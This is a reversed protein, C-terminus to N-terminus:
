LREVLDLVTTVPQHYERIAATAHRPDSADAPVVVVRRPGAEELTESSVVSGPAFVLATPLQPAHLRDWADLEFIAGGRARQHLHAVDSAARLERPAFLCWLGRAALRELARIVIDPWDDNPRYSAVLVEQGAFWPSFEAAWTQPTHEAPLPSAAPYRRADLGAARCGPCGGCSPAVRIPVQSESIGPIRQSVNYTEVFLECLQVGPALARDMRDRALRDADMAGRRAPGVAEEWVTRDALAGEGVTVVATSAYAAFAAESRVEWQEESEDSRRRPPPTAALSLLGSRNMLLLTRMNWARNEASDGVLDPPSVDLPLGLRGDDFTQGGAQMKRWREFGRELSILKPQALSNATERDGPAELLLSMSPRGDRGGRGVEQYFRDITEPVCAHVIARVDPQDVGLGFASTAVVLDLTDDRLRRIAERREAASTEGAVLMLRSFGAVSLRALWAKADFVRTTYLILPRPLRRISEIVRDVRSAPDPCSVLWYSPEHRLAVASILETPGPRGFLRQLTFISEETLTASLLITRFGSGAAKATELLDNRVGALAQFAPRFETGWHSVIHAEDIVLSRLLGREAALYVASSLSRILGEPSTFVIGQTGDAIQRRIETRAENSLEGYYALRNPFRGSAVRTGLLDRFAREQDIALSTTPVVVITTGASHSVLAEIYAALSKGSGTPLNGIITANPATALVARITERQGASRYCPLGTAATLFPDGPELDPEGVPPRNHGRFASAAPDEDGADLWEPTWPDAFVRQRDSDPFGRMEFAAWDAPAPWPADRPVPLSKSTGSLEADARLVHRLLVALDGAGVTHPAKAAARAANLLRRAPVSLDATSNPPDPWARLAVDLPEFDASTFTPSTM